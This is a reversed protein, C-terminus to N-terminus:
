VDIESLRELGAAELSLVDAAGAESLAIEVLASVSEAPSAAHTLKAAKEFDHSIESAVSGLEDLLAQATAAHRQAELPTTAELASLYEEILQEGVRLIEQARSRAAGM